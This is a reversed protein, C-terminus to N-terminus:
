SNLKRVHASFQSTHGYHTNYTYSIVVNKGATNTSYKLM